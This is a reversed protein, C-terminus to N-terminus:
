ISRYIDLKIFKINKLETVLRNANETDNWFNSDLMRAEIENVRQKKKELDFLGGLSCLKIM